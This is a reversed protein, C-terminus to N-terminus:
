QLAINTLLQIAGVSGIVTWPKCGIRTKAADDLTPIMTRATRKTGTKTTKRNRGANRRRLKVYNKTTKYLLTGSIAAVIGGFLLAFLIGIFQEGGDASHKLADPAAFIAAVLLGTMIFFTPGFFLWM